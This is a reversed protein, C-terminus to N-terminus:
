FVFRFALNILSLTILVNMGMTIAFLLESIDYKQYAYYGLNWACLVVAAAYLMFLFLGFINYCFFLMTIFTCAMGFPMLASVILYHWGYGRVTLIEALDRTRNM